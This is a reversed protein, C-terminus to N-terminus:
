SDEFQSGLVVSQQCGVVARLIAIAVERGKEGVEGV